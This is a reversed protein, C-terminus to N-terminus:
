VSSHNVYPAIFTKAENIPIAFGIGQGNSSVATDIGIVTGSDIDILPGGSDGPNIAASTQLMGSLSETSMSGSDGAQVSRNLGSIIGSVVSNSFQGLANGIAIVGGGVVEQSSDGLTVTPLGSAKIKLLALDKNTNAAVVNATYQKGNQTTVTITGNDVPLVHNNTLIYGSSTLIMGTGAGQQSQPGGFFSFTTSQTTIDVVAPSINSALGAITTSSSKSALHAGSGSVESVSNTTTQNNRMHQALMGGAVGSAGCLVVLVATAIYTKRIHM